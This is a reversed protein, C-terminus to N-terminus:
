LIQKMKMDNRQFLNYRCNIVGNGPNCSNGSLLNM